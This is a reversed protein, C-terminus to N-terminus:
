LSSVVLFSPLQPIIGSLIQVQFQLELPETFSHAQFITKIFLGYGLPISIELQEVPVSM